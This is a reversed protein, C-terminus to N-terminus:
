EINSKENEKMCFLLALSSMLMTKQSIEAKEPLTRLNDSTM